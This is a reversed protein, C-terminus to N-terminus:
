NGRGLSAKLLHGRNFEGGGARAIQTREGFL